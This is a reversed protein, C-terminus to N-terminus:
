VYVDIMRGKTVATEKYGMLEAWRGSDVMRIFEDFTIGHTERVKFYTFYDGLKELRENTM